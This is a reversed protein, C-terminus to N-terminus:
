EYEIEEMEEHNLEGESALMNTSLVINEVKKTYDTLNEKELTMYIDSEKKLLNDGIKQIKM